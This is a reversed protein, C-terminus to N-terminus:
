GKWTSAPQTLTLNSNLMYNPKSRASQRKGGVVKLFSRKHGEYRDFATLIVLINFKFSM